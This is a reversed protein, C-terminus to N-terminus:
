AVTCYELRWWFTKNHARITESRFLCWRISGKSYAFPLSRAPEMTEEKLLWVNGKRTGVALLTGCVSFQSLYVFIKIIHFRKQKM